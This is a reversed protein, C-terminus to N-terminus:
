KKLHPRAKPTGLQASQPKAHAQAPPPGKQVTLYYSNARAAAKQVATPFKVSSDILDPPAKGAQKGGIRAHARRRIKMERPSQQKAPARGPQIIGQRVLRIIPGLEKVDHRVTDESIAKDNDPLGLERIAGERLRSITMTGTPHKQLNPSLGLYTKLIANVRQTVKASTKRPKQAGARRNRIHEAGERALAMIILFDPGTVKIKKRAYIPHPTPPWPGLANEIEADSYPFKAKIETRLKSKRSKSM